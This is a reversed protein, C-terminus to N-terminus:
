LEKLMIEYVALNESFFFNSFVFYTNRTQRWRTDSVNIMRLLVSLSTILFINQDERVTGNIRTLKLHFKFITSLNDLLVWIDPKM